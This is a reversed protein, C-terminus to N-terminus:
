VKRAMELVDNVTMKPGIEGVREIIHVARQFVRDAISADTLQSTMAYNLTRISTIFFVMGSDIGGVTRHYLYSQDLTISGFNSAFPWRGLNSINVDDAM